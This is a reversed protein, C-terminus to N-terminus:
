NIRFIDEPQLAKKGYLNNGAATLCLLALLLSIHTISSSRKTPAM